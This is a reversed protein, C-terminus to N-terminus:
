FSTLKESRENCTNHTGGVPRGLDLQEVSQRVDSTLIVQALSDQHLDLEVDDGGQVVVVGVQRGEHLYSNTGPFVTTDM